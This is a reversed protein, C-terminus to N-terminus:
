YKVMQIEGRGFHPIFDELSFLFLFRIHSYLRCDGANLSASIGSTWTSIHTRYWDLADGGDGRGATNQFFFHRHNYTV